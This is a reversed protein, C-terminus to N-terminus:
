EFTGELKGSNSITKVIKEVVTSVSEEDKKSGSDAFKKVSKDSDGFKKM